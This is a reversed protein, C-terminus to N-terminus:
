NDGMKGTGGSSSDSYKLVMRCELREFTYAIM